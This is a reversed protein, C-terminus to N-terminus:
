VLTHRLTSYTLSVLHLFFSGEAVTGHLYGGRLIYILLWEYGFSTVQVGVSGRGGREARRVRNAKQILYFSVTSLSPARPICDFASVEEEYQSVAERSYYRMSRKFRFTFVPCHLCFTCNNNKHVIVYVLNCSNKLAVPSIM